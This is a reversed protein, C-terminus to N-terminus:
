LGLTFTNISLQRTIPKNEWVVDFYCNIDSIFWYESCCYSLHQKACFYKFSNINFHNVSNSLNLTYRHKCYTQQLFVRTWALRLEVSPIEVRLGPQTLLKGVAPTEAIAISKYWLGLTFLPAVSQQDLLRDTRVAANYETFKVSKSWTFTIALVQGHLIHCCLNPQITFHQSLLIQWDCAINWFSTESTPLQASTITCPSFSVHQDCTLM